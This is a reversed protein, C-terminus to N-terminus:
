TARELWERPYELTQQHGIRDGGAIHINWTRAPVMPPGDHREPIVSDGNHKTRHTLVFPNLAAIMGRQPQDVDFSALISRCNAGRATQQKKLTQVVIQKGCCVKQVQRVMADPGAAECLGKNPSTAMGFEFRGKGM